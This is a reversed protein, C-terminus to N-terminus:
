NNNVTSSKMVSSKSSELNVETGIRPGIDKDKDINM